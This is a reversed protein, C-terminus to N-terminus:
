NICCVLGVPLKLHCSNVDTSTGAEQSGEYSCSRLFMTIVSLQEKRTILVGSDFPIKRVKHKRKDEMVLCTTLQAFFCALIEYTNVLM